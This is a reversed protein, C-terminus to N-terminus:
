IFLHILYIIPFVFIMGDIRDLVGGHGPILKGTDKLNSKRKFFSVVIDGIQSVFSIMVILFLYIPNNGIFLDYNNRMFEIYFFTFFISLIFSGIMGSYTKNPSIAILKPGKLIKGFCYGGIDTSICIILIYLFYYVGNISYNRIEYISYFSFLLFIFGLIKLNLKLNFKYWEYLSFILIIFLFLNFFYGGAIIIFLTLPILVITSLVRKYFESKKDNYLVM